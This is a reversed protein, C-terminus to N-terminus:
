TPYEMVQLRLNVLLFQSFIPLIVPFCLCIGVVCAWVRGLEKGKGQWQGAGHRVEVRAKAVGKDVVDEALALCAGALLFFVALGRAMISDCVRGPRKWDGGDMGRRGRHWIITSLVSVQKQNMVLASFVQIILWRFLLYLCTYSDLYIRCNQKELRCSYYAQYSLRAVSSESGKRRKWYNRIYAQFIYLCWVVINCVIIMECVPIIRKRILYFTKTPM